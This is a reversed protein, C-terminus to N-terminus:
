RGRLATSQTDQVTRTAAVAVFVTALAFIMAVSVLLIGRENLLIQASARKRIRCFASMFCDSEWEPYFQRKEVM